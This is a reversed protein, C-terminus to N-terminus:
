RRLLGPLAFLAAGVLPLALLGVWFRWDRLRVRVERLYILTFPSM